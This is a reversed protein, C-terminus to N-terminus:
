NIIQMSTLNQLEEKRRKLWDFYEKCLVDAEKSISDMDPHISLGPIFIFLGM